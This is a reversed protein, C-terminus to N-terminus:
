WRINTAGTTKRSELVDFHRSSHRSTSPILSYKIRNAVITINFIDGMFLCTLGSSFHITLCIFINFLACTPFCTYLSHHIHTVTNEVMETNLFTEPVNWVTSGYAQNVLNSHADVHWCYSCCVLGWVVWILTVMAPLSYSFLYSCCFCKSMLHFVHGGHHYM